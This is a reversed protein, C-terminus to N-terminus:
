ADPMSRQRNWVLLLRAPWYKQVTAGMLGARQALEQLENMSYSSQVSRPGDVRAITGNALIRTGLYALAYGFRGRILDNVLVLHRSAKAMIKLLRLGKEDDLHHLFLSCTVIDYSCSLDDKEADWWFLRIPCGAASARAKVHALALQNRDCADIQLEFGATRASRWLRILIDGAGCAIDLLQLRRKGDRQALAAIPPWLIRASRSLFNIRELARLAGIFSTPDLDPSDMIEPQRTRTRLGSLLPM